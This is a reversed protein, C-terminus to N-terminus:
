AELIVQKIEKPKRIEPFIEAFRNKLKYLLEVILFLIFIDVKLM